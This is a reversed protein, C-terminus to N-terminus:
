WGYLKAEVQTTLPGNLPKTWRVARIRMDHDAGLATYRSHIKQCPDVFFNAPLVFDVDAAASEDILSMGVFELEDENEAWPVTTKLVGKVHHEELESALVQVKIQRTESRKAVKALEAMEGEEYADANREAVEMREIPPPYGQRGPEEVSLAFNGFAYSTTLKKHTGGATRLYDVDEATLELFSEEFDRRERGDGYLYKGSSVEPSGYGLRVTRERVKYGDLTGEANFVTEGVLIFTAVPQGVAESGMRLTGDAPELDEWPVYPPPLATSRELLARKPAYFAWNRTIAGLYYGVQPHVENGDEDILSGYPMDLWGEEPTAGPIFGRRFGSKDYYHSTETLSITTFIEAPYAYAPETSGLTSDTTYVARPVWAQTGTDYEYRAALPNTYGWTQTREHVVVGARTRQEFRVRRVIRLKPSDPPTQATYVGGTSQSYGPQAPVYVARTITETTTLTDGTDEDETAIQQTGIITVDTLVDAKHRIRYKSGLLYDREEFDWATAEGARPRGVQPNVLYGQRDWFIRRNEVEQQEAAVAFPDGDVVQVEKVTPNGDELRTQTEGAAAALLKLVRGRPLGHGPPLNLTAVQRDFRGGRCVGSISETYGDDGAERDSTDAIGGRILDVRHDGTETVYVGYVDITKKGTPPGAGVFPNGLPETPSTLAVTFGCQQLREDYSRSVSITGVVKSLDLVSGNIVIEFGAQQMEDGRPRAAESATADSDVTLVPGDPGAEQGTVLLVTEAGALAAFSMATDTYGSAM